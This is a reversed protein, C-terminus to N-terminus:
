GQGTAGTNMMSLTLHVVDGVPVDTLTTALYLNFTFTFTGNANHVAIPGEQLVASDTPTAQAYNSQVTAVNPYGDVTTISFVGTSIFV